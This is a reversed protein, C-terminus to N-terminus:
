SLVTAADKSSDVKFIDIENLDVSFFQSGSDLVRNVVDSLSATLKYMKGKRLDVQRKDM